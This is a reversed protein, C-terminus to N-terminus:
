FARRSARTAAALRLWRAPAPPCLEPDRDLHGGHRHGREAVAFDRGLGSLRPPAASAAAFCAALAARRATLWRVGERERTTAAMCRM